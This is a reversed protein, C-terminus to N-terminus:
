PLLMNCSTVDKTHCQWLVAAATPMEDGTIGGVGGNKVKRSVMGELRNKTDESGGGASNRSSTTKLPVESVSKYM